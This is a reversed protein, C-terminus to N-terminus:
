PKSKKTPLRTMDTVDLTPRKRNNHRVNGNLVKLLEDGTVDLALVNRNVMQLDPHEDANGRARQKSFYEEVPDQSIKESLFFEANEDDFLLKGLKIFSMASSFFIHIM